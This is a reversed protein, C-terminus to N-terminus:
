LSTLTTAAVAALVILGCVAALLLPQVVHGARGGVAPLRFIKDAFFVLIMLALGFRSASGEIAAVAATTLLPTTIGIHLGLGNALRPGPWNWLFFGAAAAAASLAMGATGREGSYFLVLGIGLGAMALLIAPTANGAEFDSFSFTIVAVAVFCAGFLSAQLLGGTEFATGRLWILALLPAVIILTRRLPRLDPATLDGVAGLAVAGLLIITTRDFNIPQQLDLTLGYSVLLAIGAGTSAIRPGLSPGGALRLIGAAAFAVIAPLAGFQIWPNEFL